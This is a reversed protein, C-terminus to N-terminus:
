QGPAPLFTAPGGALHPGTSNAGATPSSHWSLCLGITYHRYDPCLRRLLNCFPLFVGPAGTELLVLLWIMGPAAVAAVVRVTHVPRKNEETQPWLVTYTLFLFLSVALWHWGGLAWNMYGVLAAALLASEKLTTRRRWLFVILALICIACLRFILDDTHMPLYRRLLGYCGLPIFLNDLGGVSIAEFMMVLIGLVLAILVSEARGTDGMLLLPFLASLFAVTFFALSGQASKSGESTQYRITGYRTGVLAAVADALTLTLLPIVYLLRDEALLFLVGVALPFYIEGLSSREVGNIIGGFQQRLPRILRTGALAAVALLALLLVPWNKQFLWPFTLTVLGMVIHVAKRSLEPNITLRRTLAKLGAMLGTLVLLVSVIGIWPAPM